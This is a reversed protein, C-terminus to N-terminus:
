AGLAVRAIHRLAQPLHQPVAPLTGASESPFSDEESVQNQKRQRGSLTLLRRLTSNFTDVLPESHTKVFQFVDDDVEVQHFRM